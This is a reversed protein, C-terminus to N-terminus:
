FIFYVELDEDDLNDHHQQGTKKVLINDEDSESESEIDKNKKEGISNNVSENDALVEIGLKSKSDISKSSSSSIKGM